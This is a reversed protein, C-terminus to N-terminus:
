KPESLLSNDYPDIIGSFRERCGACFLQYTEFGASDTIPNNTRRFPVLSRCNPCEVIQTGSPTLQIIQGVM